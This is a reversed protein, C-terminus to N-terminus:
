AYPSWGRENYNDVSLTLFNTALLVGNEVVLIKGSKITILIRGDPTMVMDTPDLNQALLSENFGAPLQSALGVFSWFSFSHLLFPNKKEIIM